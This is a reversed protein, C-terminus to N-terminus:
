QPYAQWGLGWSLLQTSAVPCHLLTALELATGPMVLSIHTSRQPVQWPPPQLEGVAGSPVRLRLGVNEYDKSEDGGM